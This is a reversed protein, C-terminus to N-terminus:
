NWLRSNREEIILDSATPGGALLPQRHKVEPTALYRAISELDPGRMGAQHLVTMAANSDSCKDETSATVLHAQTEFLRLGLEFIQPLEQQYTHLTPVLSSPVQIQITEM